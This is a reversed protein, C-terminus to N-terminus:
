VKVEETRTVVSRYTPVRDLLERHRGVADVRGGVLLVVRDARDLLLPSTTTVVTTRGRRSGHLREAIRAETHADVASTPEVLLLFEPDAALARALVLRQRQGGSFSRGRETVRERLGAPLAEIIDEAAAAVLAEDVAAAGRDATDLQPGLEGSFLTSTIDSVVIRRRIVARPLRDLPVEGWRVDGEAYRGLRDLVAASDDPDESVLATLEGNRIRVGSTVDVLDAGEPPAPSPDAPDSVEPELALVRCVRGAAVFARIWKNMAETASRLPLM